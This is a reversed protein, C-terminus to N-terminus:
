HKDKQRMEYSILLGVVQSYNQRGSEIKNGKLYLDYMWDQISGILPSYKETWYLRNQEYVEVVEPRIRGALAEFEEQTLLPRANSLVHPLLSLYGSFRMAQWRSCSCVQYAYFNAEAESTIGLLHALEHTYTAPYQNPLLDGNVTFECFFPGMSGTVGVASILPTFVMTKVRPQPHFPRHVALEPAIHNYGEVAADRILRKDTLPHPTFSANLSDIYRDAFDLFVEKSYEAPEIGTRAYFGPQSYNLGWALYFWAYVWLLYEGVKRLARLLRQKRRVVAYVPYLVVWAISLAIFVDGIAFPFLASFASLVYAIGPYLHQAYWQGWSPIQQTLVVYLLLLLLLGHRPSVHSRIRTFTRNM